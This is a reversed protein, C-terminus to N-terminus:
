RTRRLLVRVRARNRSGINTRFERALAMYIVIVTIVTRVIDEKKNTKM